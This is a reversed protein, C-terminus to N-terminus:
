RDLKGDSQLIASAVIMQHRYKFVVDAPFEPMEKLTAYPLPHESSSLFARFLHGRASQQKRTEDKSGCHGHFPNWLRSSVIVARSRAPGESRMEVPSRHSALRMGVDARSNELQLYALLAKKLRVHYRCHRLKEFREPRVLM